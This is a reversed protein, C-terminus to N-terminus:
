KGAEWGKLRRRWRCVWGPWSGRHWGSATVSLAERWAADHDLYRRYEGLLVDLDTGPVIVPEAALVGTERLHGLVVGLSGVSVMTRYGEARRAEVFREIEDAGLGGPVHGQQVDM